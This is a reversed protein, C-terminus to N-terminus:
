FSSIVKNHSFNNLMSLPFNTATRYNAARLILKMKKNIDRKKTFSKTKNVYYPSMILSTTSVYEWRVVNRVTTICDSLYIRKERVEKFKLVKLWKHFTVIISLIKSVFELKRTFYRVVPFTLIRNKLLRKSNNVLREAIIRYLKSIKKINEYELFTM